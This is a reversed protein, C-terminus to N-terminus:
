IGVYVSVVDNAVSLVTREFSFKKRENIGQVIIPQDEIVTIFRAHNPLVDFAGNTNVSSVSSAKGEWILKQASRIRVQLTPVPSQGASTTINHQPDM